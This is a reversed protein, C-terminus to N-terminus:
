NKFYSVAFDLREQIYFYVFYKCFYAGPARFCTKFVYLVYLVLKYYAIIKGFQKLAIIPMGEREEESICIRIKHHNCKNFKSRRIIKLNQYHNKIEFIQSKLDKKRCKCVFIM